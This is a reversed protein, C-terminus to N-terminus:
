NKATFLLPLGQNKKEFLSVPHHYRSCVVPAGTSGALNGVAAATSCHAPHGPKSLILNLYGRTGYFAASVENGSLGMGKECLEPWVGLLISHFYHISPEM